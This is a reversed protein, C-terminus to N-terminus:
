SGAVNAVVKGRNAGVGCQFALEGSATPPLVISVDTNLPLLAEIKFQPFVVATACAHDTTRRFILPRADEVIVHAPEFGHESIEIRDVSPAAQASSVSHPEHDGAPAQRQCAGVGLATAVLGVYITPSMVVRGLNLANRVMHRM